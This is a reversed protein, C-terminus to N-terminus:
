VPCFYGGAGPSIVRCPRGACRNTNPCANFRSYLLALPTGVDFLKMFLSQTRFSNSAYYEFLCFSVLGM